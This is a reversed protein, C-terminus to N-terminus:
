VLSWKIAFYVNYLISTYSKRRQSFWTKRDILCCINQEQTFAIRGGAHDKNCSPTNCPINPNGVARQWVWRGVALWNLLPLFFLSHQWQHWLMMKLYFLIWLVELNEDLFSITYAIGNEWPEVWLFSESTALLQSAVRSYLQEFKMPALLMRNRWGM